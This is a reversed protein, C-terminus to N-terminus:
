SCGGARCTKAMPMASSLWSRVSMACVGGWTGAGVTEMAIRTAVESKIRGSNEKMEMKDGVLVAVKAWKAEETRARESGAELSQNM